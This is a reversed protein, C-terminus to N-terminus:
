TQNYLLLAHALTDWLGLNSNDLPALAPSGLSCTVRYGTALSSAGPSGWKVWKDAQIYARHGKCHIQTLIWSFFYFILYPPLSCLLLSLLLCSLFPSSPLLSPFSIRTLSCSLPLCSARRRSSLVSSHNKAPSWGGTEAVLLLNDLVRLGSYKHIWKYQSLFLNSLRSLNIFSSALFSTYPFNVFSPEIKVFLFKYFCM